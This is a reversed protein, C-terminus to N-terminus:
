NQFNLALKEMFEKVAPNEKNWQLENYFYDEVEEFSDMEAVGEMAIRLAAGSGGFLERIFRFKDNQSLMAMPSVGKKRITDGIGVNSYKEGITVPTKEDDEKISVTEKISVSEKEGVASVDEEDEDPDSIEAVLAKDEEQEAELGKNRFYAKRMQAMRDIVPKVPDETKVEEREEEEEVEADNGVEDVIEDDKKEAEEDVILEIEDEQGDKIESQNESALLYENLNNVHKTLVEMKNNMLRPFTDHDDIKKLALQVLGELEYVSDLVERMLLEYKENEM